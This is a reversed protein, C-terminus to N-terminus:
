AARGPPSHSHLTRGDPSVATTTGDTAAILLLVDGSEAPIILAPRDACPEQPHIAIELDARGSGALGEFAQIDGSQDASPAM